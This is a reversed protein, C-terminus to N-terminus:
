VFTRENSRLAMEVSSVSNSMLRAGEKRTRNGNNVKMERSLDRWEIKWVLGPHSVTMAIVAISIMAGELIMFTTQDNALSGSFGGSLEACRFISRVFITVWAVLLSVLLGNFRTSARLADYQPNFVDLMGSYQVRRVRVAFDICLSMFIALSVVQWALGAIMINIGTQQLSGTATATIGGGAAQLLLAIVDGAIFLYTYTKPRFYSIERGYVLVIRSFCLYIAATFFAPAITLPVLYRIHTILLHLLYLLLPFYVFLFSM